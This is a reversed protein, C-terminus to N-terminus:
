GRNRVFGRVRRRHLPTTRSALPYPSPGNPTGKFEYQEQTEMLFMTEGEQDREEERYKLTHTQMVRAYWSVVIILQREEHTLAEMGEDQLKQLASQYSPGDERSPTSGTADHVWDLHFPFLDFYEEPPRVNHYPSDALGGGDATPTMPNDAEGRCGCLAATALLVMAIVKRM